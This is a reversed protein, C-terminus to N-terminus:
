NGVNMLHEIEAYAEDYGSILHRGIPHDSKTLYTIAAIFGSPYKNSIQIIWSIDQKDITITGKPKGYFDSYEVTINECRDLILKYADLSKLLHSDSSGQKTLCCQKLKNKNLFVSVKNIFWNTISYFGVFVVAIMYIM